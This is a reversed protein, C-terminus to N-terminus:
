NQKQKLDVYLGGKRSTKFNLALKGQSIINELTALDKINISEKTEKAKQKRPKLKFTFHSKQTFVPLDITRLYRDNKNFIYYKPRTNFKLLIIVWALVIKGKVRIALSGSLLLVGLIFPVKYLVFKMYPPFAIYILGTAFVPILLLLIQTLNLNGAIKDEVTTIQAPIITTRM